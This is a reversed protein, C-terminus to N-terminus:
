ELPAVEQVLGWLFSNQVGKYKSSFLGDDSKVQDLKQVKGGWKLSRSELNFDM